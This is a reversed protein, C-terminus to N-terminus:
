RFYFVLVEGHKSSTSAENLFEKSVKTATCGLGAAPIRLLRTEVSGVDLSKLLAMWPRLDPNVCLRM